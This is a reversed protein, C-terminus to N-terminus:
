APVPTRLPEGAFHRRANDLFSDLSAELAEPSWGAVHPTLVLRPCSLLEAAVNPENEYVDLAAGAITGDHLARVLAATDIVSGRAVNVLFGDPGLARLVGEDVARHTAPGGPLALVLKDCWSALEALSSFHRYADAGQAPRRSFYGIEMGFGEGRRAVGRGIAGLGAVGLRKGAVTPLPPVDDRWGGARTLADMAPVARVAGLLLAWAHDAVSESNAGAGNCLAVGRERAAAADLNEYGAGFACALTLGPMGAMQAATLGITGNTLVVRVQAGHADIRAQCDEPRSADIVTFAQALREMHAASLPLMVLLVPRNM